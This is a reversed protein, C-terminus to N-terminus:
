SASKGRLLGQPRKSRWQHKPVSGQRRPSYGLRVKRQEDSYISFAAQLRSARIVHPVVKRLIRAGTGRIRGTKARVIVEVKADAIARLGATASGIGLDHAEQGRTKAL